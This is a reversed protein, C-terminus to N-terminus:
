TIDKVDDTRSGVGGADDVAVDKVNDTCGDEGGAEEAADEEVTRSGAGGIAVVDVDDTRSVAGIGGIAKDGDDVLGVMLQLQLKEHHAAAMM